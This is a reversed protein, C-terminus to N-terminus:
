KEILQPKKAQGVEYLQQWLEGDRGRVVTELYEDLIATDQAQEKAVAARLGPLMDHVEVSGQGFHQAMVCADLLVSIAEATSMVSRPSKIKTEGDLTKGLRLERFITVILSLVGEPINARIVYDDMLESTRQGVIQMEIDMSETQPLLVFNFRRKLASSMENVGRDRTNATAILNFGRQASVVQNLEPIGIEKESLISLLTDQVESACRTMEEFRVIKGSRIARMVPSEIMARESPGEALLLAYNWTYKTQDETVGSTGQVLLRSDGSIAAALHESVWSKGTGPEGILLLSRESALTAIAVQIVRRKGIYKPTIAIQEGDPGPVTEGDSGMVFTEVMRPSLQWGPPREYSDAAQLAALEIAFREESPLRIFDMTM